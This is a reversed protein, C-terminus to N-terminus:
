LTANIGLEISHIYCKIICLSEKSFIVPFYEQVGRNVNLVQGVYFGKM